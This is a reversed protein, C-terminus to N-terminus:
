RSLKYLIYQNLSVNEADAREKLTRHLTKPIRLNFKGSFENEKLPEPVLDGNELMVEIYGQMAEKVNEYAEAATEGDSQCGDLEKVTAFYYNGTDESVLRIQITYPLSMYYALNKNQM